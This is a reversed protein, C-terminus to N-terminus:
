VIILKLSINVLTLNVNNRLLMIESLRNRKSILLLTTARLNM